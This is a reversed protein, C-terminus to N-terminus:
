NDSKAYYDKTRGVSRNYCIGGIMNFAKEWTEDTCRYYTSFAIETAECVEDFPFLSLWRRMQTEGNDNFTCGSHTLLIDSIADLMDNRLEMLEHKWEVIMKMQERRDQSDELQKRQREVASEDSLEKAGKGRNCDRCSTVLNLLENKGGKAVPILHDVELIM